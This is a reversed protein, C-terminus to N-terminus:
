QLSLPPYIDLFYIFLLNLSMRQALDQLVVGTLMLTGFCLFRQDAEPYPLEVDQGISECAQSVVPANVNKAYLSKGSEM